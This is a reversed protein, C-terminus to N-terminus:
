SSFNDLTNFDEQIKVSSQHCHFIELISSVSTSTDSLTNSDRKLDLDATINVFYKNILTALAKVDTILVDKERLILKNSNLAKNSFFPKIIKWFKKDTLDKSDRKQFYDKKTHRFPNVCFNGQKKYNDWDENARTKNYINKSKSGHMLAKRLGKIGPPLLFTM